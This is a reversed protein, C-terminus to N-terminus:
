HLPPLEVIIVDDVSIDDVLSTPAASPLEPIIPKEDLQTRAYGIQLLNQVIFYYTM